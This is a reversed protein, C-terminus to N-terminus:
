KGFRGILLLCAVAATIFLLILITKLGDRGAFWGPKSGPDRGPPDANVGEPGRDNEV